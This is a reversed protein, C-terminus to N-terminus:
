CLFERDRRSQRILVSPTASADQDARTAGIDFCMDPEEEFLLSDAFANAQSPDRKGKGHQVTMAQTDAKSLRARYVSEDTYLTQYSEVTSLM